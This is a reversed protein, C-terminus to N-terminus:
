FKLEMAIRSAAPFGAADEALAAALAGSLSDGAVPAFGIRAYYPANWPVDAFTTLTLRALGRGGFFRQVARVLGVTRKQGSFEPHVDLQRIHLGEDHPLVRLAGAPRDDGTVSVWLWWNDQAYALEEASDPAHAAIEPYPTDLFMRGTARQIDRVIEVEDPRALRCPGGIGDTM